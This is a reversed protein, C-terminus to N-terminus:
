TTKGRAALHAVLKDLAGNWGQRHGDREEDSPLQSHTFTMETGGANPRLLVDIRSVTRDNHTQWQWTMALKRPRVVELYEGEAEHESGDLMRFRLRFKGGVRPDSQAILVPGEDPGIWAKLGEPEILADFVIDPSAAIQKVLTMSTM